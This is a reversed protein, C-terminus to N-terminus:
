LSRAFKLCAALVAELVVQLPRARATDWAPPWPDSEDLYADMALEMQIAHVGRAPAGYNRTIWGGKFRGNVVLDGTSCAAAVREALAPACSAGNFTGINFRPLKGAFLRPVRSRISHADYLVIREHRERLRAIEATLTQHYPDFYAARRRQIEQASPERGEHYLPTGDFATTPCLGTTAQGPYLSAGSPDRNVDIVARCIATRVITADLDAAFAYLKDVHFDADSRAVELSLYLGAFDPPIELGAHPVSVILPAEGRSVNLWNQM